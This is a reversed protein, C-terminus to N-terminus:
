FSSVDKARSNDSNRQQKASGSFSYTLHLQPSPSGLACKGNGAPTFPSGEGDEDTSADWEDKVDGPIDDAPKAETNTVSAPAEADPLSKQSFTVDPTSPESPTAVSAGPKKKKNGYVVRKPGSSGEPARELGEIRVGSAILAKRAVEAQARERKQKDTLLRGEKRALEKKAKARM